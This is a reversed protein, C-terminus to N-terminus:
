TSAVVTSLLYLCNVIEQFQYILNFWWLWFHRMKKIFLFKSFLRQKNSKFQKKNRMKNNTNINLPNQENVISGFSKPSHKTEALHPRSSTQSGIYVRGPSRGGSM